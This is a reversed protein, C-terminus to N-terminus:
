GWQEAMAKAIGEFTKSRLKPDGKAGEEVHYFRRNPRKNGPKVWNAIPEVINTPQLEPLGKLWLCTEKTYPDGFQWPHMIQDPKRIATSIRGVPNELAIMKINANMLIQVFILAEKQLKQKHPKKWHAAGAKSLHTCPPFFIGMDWSGKIVEIIDGQIHWEPHDGSSEVVDCSYAEHGAKRMEICVRQSEECGIIIRM